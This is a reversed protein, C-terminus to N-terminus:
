LLYHDIGEIEYIPRINGWKPLPEAVPPVRWERLTEEVSSAPFRPEIWPSVDLTRYEWTPKGTGIDLGRYVMRSDASIVAGNLRKALEIGLTTKGSATPGAVVILRDSM